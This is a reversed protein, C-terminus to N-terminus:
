ILHTNKLYNLKDSSFFHKYVTLLINTAYLTNSVMNLELLIAQIDILLKM